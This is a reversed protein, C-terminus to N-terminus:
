GKLKQAMLNAYNTPDKMYEALATPDTPISTNKPTGDGNGLGLGPKINNKFLNLHNGSEDLKKIYDRVPVVLINGEDDQTRVGVTFREQPDGKDNVVQTAVLHRDLMDRMQQPSFVGLENCAFNVEHDILTSEFRKRWAETDKQAMSKTKNLEDQLQTAQAQTRELETQFTSRSQTLVTELREREEKTMNIQGVLDQMEKSLAENKERMKQRLGGIIKALQAETLNVKTDATSDFNEDVKSPDFGTPAPAPTPTPTPTPAPDPPALGPLEEGCFAKPKILTIYYPKDNLQFRPKM